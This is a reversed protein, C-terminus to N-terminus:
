KIGVVRVKSPDKPYNKWVDALYDTDNGGYCDPLAPLEAWHTIDDDRLKSSLSGDECEWYFGGDVIYWYDPRLARLLRQEATVSDDFEYECPALPILTGKPIYLAQSISAYPKAGNEGDEIKKAILCFRMSAPRNGDVNEHWEIMTKM